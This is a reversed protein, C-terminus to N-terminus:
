PYDLALTYGKGDGTLADGDKFTESEKDCRGNVNLDICLGNEKYLGDHNSDEFAIAKYRRGNLELEGAWHGMSYFFLGDKNAYIWLNLPRSTLAGDKAIIDTQLYATAAFAGAGLNRLPAGDNTLDEDNNKDLYLLGSDKEVFAFSVQQDVGNGLKLYGYRPTAPYAPEVALTEYPKTSLKSASTAGHTMGAPSSNVYKFGRYINVHLIRGGKATLPLPPEKSQPKEAKADPAPKTESSRLPEPKPPTTEPKIVPRAPDQNGGTKAAWAGKINFKKSLANVQQLAERRTAYRGVRVRFYHKGKVDIEAIHVKIGARDLREATKLAEDKDLYSAVNITWSVDATNDPKDQASGAQNAFLTVCLISLIIAAIHNM